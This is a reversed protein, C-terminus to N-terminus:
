RTFVRRRVVDIGVIALFLCLGILASLCIAWWWGFEAIPRFINEWGVMRRFLKNTHVIYVIFTSPALFTIIHQLRESKVEIRGFLIMLALAELVISPSTYSYALDGVRAGGGILQPLLRSGIAGLASIACGIALIVVTWLKKVRIVLSIKFIASGLVYLYMFWLVSYGWKIVFLDAGAALSCFSFLGGGTLLLVIMERNSLNDVLRNLFPMLFFLAFYQTFFWYQNTLVPFCAELWDHWGVRVRSVCCAVIVLTLSYGVVQRWLKFIRAYRFGLRCMIYGTAMVFVDVACYCFCHFLQLTWEAGLSKESLSSEVGANLIHHVVVMVMAMMKLLDIGFERKM